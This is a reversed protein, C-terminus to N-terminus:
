PLKVLEVRRNRARGEPTENTDVPQSKGYGNTTLRGSSVGFRSVLATKVAAARRKSLDLNPADGGISDTHGAISLKWDPHRRLIEQIDRL